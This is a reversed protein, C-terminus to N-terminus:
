SPKHMNCSYRCRMRDCFEATRDSADVADAIIGTKQPEVTCWPHERAIPCKRRSKHRAQCVSSYFRVACVVTQPTQRRTKFAPLCRTESQATQDPSQSATQRALSSLRRKTRQGRVDTTCQRVGFSVAFRIGNVCGFFKQFKAGFFQAAAIEQLVAMGDARGLVCFFFQTRRADAAPRTM